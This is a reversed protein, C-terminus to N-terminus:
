VVCLLSTGDVIGLSRLSFEDDDVTFAQDQWRLLLTQPTAQLEEQLAECAAVRLKQMPDEPHLGELRRFAGGVTRLTVAFDPEDQRVRNWIDTAFRILESGSMGEVRLLDGIGIVTAQSDLKLPYTVMGSINATSGDVVIRSGKSNVWTGQMLNQTLRPLRILNLEQGNSIDLDRLRRLYDSSQFVQADRSLQVECAYIGLLKATCQILHNLTDEESLNSVHRLNGAITRLSVSLEGKGTRFYM